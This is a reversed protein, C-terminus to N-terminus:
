LLGLIHTLAEFQVRHREEQGWLSAEVNFRKWSEASNTEAIAVAKDLFLSDPQEFYQGALLKGRLRIKMATELVKAFHNIDNYAQYFGAFLVQPAVELIWPPLSGSAARLISAMFVAHGKINEVATSPNSVDSENLADVPFKQRIRAALVDVFARGLRVTKEVLHMVALSQPGDMSLPPELMIIVIAACFTEM